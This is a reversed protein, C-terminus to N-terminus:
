STVVVSMMQTSATADINTYPSPTSRKAFSVNTGANTRSKSIQRIKVQGIAVSGAM